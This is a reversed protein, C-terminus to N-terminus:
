APMESSAPTRLADVQLLEVARRGTAEEPTWGYADVQGTVDQCHGVSGRPGPSTSFDIWPQMRHSGARISGIRGEEVATRLDSSCM